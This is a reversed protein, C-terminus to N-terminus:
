EGGVLPKWEEGKFWYDRRAQLWGLNKKVAIWNNIYNLTDTDGKRIAIGAHDSALHGDIPLFIKDPHEAALKSPQPETGVFADARGNLLEQLAAAEDDFQRITAKPMQARVVEVPITGRRLAFVVEPRNFDEASNAGEMRTKHAALGYYNAGYSHSFNVRLNRAPTVSMGGVIMDFKKALLAPIIGDWATPIIEAEVGMDAALQRAVDAEFGIFEGTKARMAWPVFSSLGVRLSGRDLADEVAGALAPAAVFLGACAIILGAITKLVTKVAIGKPSLMGLLKKCFVKERGAEPRGHGRPTKAFFYFVHNFWM